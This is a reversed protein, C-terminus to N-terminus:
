WAFIELIKKVLIETRADIEDPTWNNKNIIDKNLGESLENKYGINKEKKTLDRKKIFPKNGMESNYQTLTLNGLKNMYSEQIEKVNRSDSNEKAWDALVKEWETDEITQPLIHEINWATPSKKDNEAWFDVSTKDHLGWEALKSLIFYTNKNDGNPDYVDDNLRNKIEADDAFFKKLTEKLYNYIDNEVLNNSGIHDICSIFISDLNNTTPFNIINRRFFFKILLDCISQLNKENLNLTSSNKLLYLLLTYSTTGNIRNLDNFLRNLISTNKKVPEGLIKLYYKSSDIIQHFVRLSDFKVMKEYVEYLTERKGIPLDKSDLLEENLWDSRYANYSQRFFREQDGSPIENKGDPRLLAKDIAEKWRTRLIKYKDKDNKNNLEGFLINRIRDTFTLPVGRNNLAEFLMNANSSSDATIKVLKTENVSELLDFIKKVQQTIDDVKQGNEDETCYKKVRNKFYKHSKVILKRGDCSDKHLDEYNYLEDRNLVEDMEEVLLNLYDDINDEFQPFIRSIYKENPLAIMLQKQLLDKKEQIKKMMKKDNLISKQKSYKNLVSYISVLLLSLTTLRQQGDVVECVHYLNDEAIGKDVCLIAGVFYGRENDTIDDFLKEWNKTNWVYPRQYAPIKFVTQVGTAGPNFLATNHLPYNFAEKIMSALSFVGEFFNKVVAIIKELCEM